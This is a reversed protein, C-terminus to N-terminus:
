SKMKKAVPEELEDRGEIVIDETEKCPIDEEERSVEEEELSEQGIKDPYKGILDMAHGLDTRPNPSYIIRGHLDCDRKSYTHIPLCELWKLMSKEEKEAKMMIPYIFKHKFDNVKETWKTWELREHIGDGGFRKNYRDYHVDELMLGLGPARPLDIKELKFTEKLTDITAFGKMVAIATGIMKRIQHLMFSQGRIRVIVVELGEKMFPESAEISVIFRKASADTSEKGSTFNHFNHTGKFINLVDRFEKIVEPPARYDQSTLSNPPALAFTPMMYSYTRGDCFNKSDFYKTTKIAGILQVTEPLHQNVEDVEKSSFHSPLQLSLVQVAASVGKDTRAARQFHILAIKAFEEDNIYKSKLLAKLVEEEITDFGPNRQLGNYGSGCYSLLLAFKNKKIRAYDKQGNSSPTSSDKNGTQEAEEVANQLNMRSIFSQFIPGTTRTDSKISPISKTVFVLAKQLWSQM